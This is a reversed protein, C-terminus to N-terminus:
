VAYGLLKKLNNHFQKNQTHLKLKEANTKSQEVYADYQEFLLRYDMYQKQGWHVLLWNMADPNWYEMPIEAEKLISIHQIAKLSLASMQESLEAEYKATRGLKKLIRQPFGVKKDHNQVLQWSAKVIENLKSAANWYTVFSITPEEEPSPEGVKYTRFVRNPQGSLKRDYKRRKEPNSLVRYAELIEQMRATTDINNQINADPHYVKALANKASTIEEPTADRSVGLVSYYTHIGM